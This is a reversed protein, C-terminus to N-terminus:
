RVSYFLYFEDGEMGEVEQCMNGKLLCLQKADKFTWNQVNPHWPYKRDMVKEIGLLVPGGRTM